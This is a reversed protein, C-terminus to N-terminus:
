FTLPYDRGRRTAATALSTALVAKGPFWQRVAGRRDCSDVAGGSQPPSPSRRM